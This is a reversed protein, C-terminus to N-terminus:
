KGQISALEYLALMYNYIAQSLNLQAQRLALEADSLELLTGNGAKYRVQAIELGKSSSREAQLSAIFQEAAHRQSTQTNTLQLSLQQQTSQKQLEIQKQQIRLSKLGYVTSGGSYIPINLSLGVISSPSWRKVKNLHLQNSAFNYNYNFSISLTPLFEKQKVKIGLDLQRATFDMARLTTNESLDFRQGETTPMNQYVIDRYQQLEETLVLETEPSLDLLVLLKMKALRVQQRAQLVNPVLNRIQTEIRILDYEAVLGQTYKAQIDHQNRELNKLSQELVKQSDSAFLVGLYAKRVESRLNVRSSRVGELAKEVSLRDLALSAWLQPAFLPMSANLGGLISHTQGMEIGEEPFMSAMPSGSDDSGFFVRQKKLAYGYQGNVGITPFLKARNVRQEMEAKHVDLEATKVSLNRKEGLNVAESLSLRLTDAHEAHLTSYLLCIVM